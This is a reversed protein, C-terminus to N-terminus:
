VRAACPYPIACSSLAALLTHPTRHLAAHALCFLSAISISHAKFTWDEYKLRAALQLRAMPNRVHASTSVAVEERGGQIQM